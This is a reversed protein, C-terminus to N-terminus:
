KIKRKKRKKKPTKKIGNRWQMAYTTGWERADPYTDFADLDM